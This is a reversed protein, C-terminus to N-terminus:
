WGRSREVKADLGRRELQRAVRYADDRDRFTRYLDWHGFHRVFVQYSVRDHDHRNRHQLEVPPQASATDSTLAMGSVTGVAILVAFTIKRFM